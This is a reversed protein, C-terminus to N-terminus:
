RPAGGAASQSQYIQALAEDALLERGAEVTRQAAVSLAACAHVVLDPTLLESPYCVEFVPLGGRLAPRVLRLGAAVRGLLMLCAAQGPAPAAPYERALPSLRFCACQGQTEVVATHYEGPVELSLEPAGSGEIIPWGSQCCLEVLHEGARPLDRKGGAGEAAPPRPAADLYDILIDLLGAPESGASTAGVAPSLCDRPWECLFRLGNPTPVLRLPGELRSNRRLLSEAVSGRGTRAPRYLSLWHASLAVRIVGPQGPRLCVWDGGASTRLECGMGAFALALGAPLQPTDQQFAARVGQPIPPTADPAFGFDAQM